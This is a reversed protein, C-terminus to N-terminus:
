GLLKGDQIDEEYGFLIEGSAAFFASHAHSWVPRHRRTWRNLTWRHRKQRCQPSERRRVRVQFHNRPHCQRPLYVQLSQHYHVLHGWGDDLPVPPCVPDAHRSAWFAGSNSESEDCSDHSRHYRCCPDTWHYEPEQDSYESAHVEQEWEEVHAKQFKGGCPIWMPKWRRIRKAMTVVCSLSAISDCSFFFFGPALCVVHLTHAHTDTCDSILM